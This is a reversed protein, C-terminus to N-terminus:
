RDAPDGDLRGLDGAVAIQFHSAFVGKTVGSRCFSNVRRIWSFSASAALLGSLL